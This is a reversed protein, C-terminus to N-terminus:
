RKPTRRQYTKVSGSTCIVRYNGSAVDARLAPLMNARFAANDFDDAYVLYDNGATMQLTANPVRTAIATYWEDHTSVTADAPVCALAARANDLSHYNAKLYHLPHLPNFAILVIGSITLAATLWRGAIRENTRRVITAVGFATGVLVWPIWIAPYHTGMRWVLGENALLVIALGPLALWTWRSRFPLFALPAFIELLYTLRGVTAIAAVFALPHLLPALMLTLPGAAFPYTYFHAPKWGGLSPIIWTYYFLLSAAAVIAASTGAVTLARSRGAPTGVVAFVIGAVALEICLDERLGAILMACIGFWWWARRDAALVLGVALPAFLGVEHFESFGIGVLPPYILALIGIRVALSETVYPRVLVYLLPATAVTAIVQVIQLALVMHTAAMLPWLLALTPSWHFRFHTGHEVGNRMGGFADLVIQAFTGADAGYTWLVTRAIALVVLLVFM